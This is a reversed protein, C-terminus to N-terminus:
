RRSTVARVASRTASTSAAASLPIMATPASPTRRWNKTSTCYPRSALDKYLERNAPDMKSMAPDEYDDILMDILKGAHYPCDSKNGIAWGATTIPSVKDKNDPGAPVPVVGYEFDALGYERANVINIEVNNFDLLMAASGKYFTQWPDADYGSWKSTYYADQILEFARRM